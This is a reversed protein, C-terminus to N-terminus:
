HVVAIRKIERDNGAQIVAFYIGEPLTSLDLDLSGSSNDSLDQTGLMSFVKASISFNEADVLLQDMLVSISITQPPNESVSSPQPPQLNPPLQSYDFKFNPCTYVAITNPDNQPVNAKNTVDTVVTAYGFNNFSFSSGTKLYITAYSFDGGGQEDIVSAGPEAFVTQSGGMESGIISYTGGAQVWVESDDGSENDTVIQVNAPIAPDCSLIQYGFTIASSACGGPATVTLTGDKPGATAYTVTPSTVSSTSLSADQNFTWLYTSGAPEESFDEVVIPDGEFGAAFYCHCQSPTYYNPLTSADPHPSPISNVSIDNGNDASIVYPVTSIIRVRFHSGTSTLAISFSTDGAKMTGLDTFTSFSGNGNSLQLVFTNNSDFSGSTTYPVSISDGICYM